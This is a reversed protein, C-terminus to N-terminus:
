DANGPTTFFYSSPLESPKFITYAPTLWGRCADWVWCCYLSALYLVHWFVAKYCNWLLSCKLKTVTCIVVCSFACEITDTKQAFNCCFHQLLSVTCAEPILSLRIRRYIGVYFTMMKVREGYILYLLMKSLDYYLSSLNLNKNPIRLRPKYNALIKSATRITVMSLDSKVSDAM